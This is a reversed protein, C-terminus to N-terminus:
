PVSLNGQLCDCAFRKKGKPRGRHYNLAMYRASKRMFTIPTKSAPPWVLIKMNNTPRQTCVFVVSAIHNTYFTNVEHTKNRVLCFWSQAKVYSCSQKQILFPFVPINTFGNIYCETELIFPWADGLPWLSTFFTTIM